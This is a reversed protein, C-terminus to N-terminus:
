KLRRSKQRLSNLKKQLDPVTDKEQNVLDSFIRDVNIAKTKRNNRKIVFIVAILGVTVLSALVLLM